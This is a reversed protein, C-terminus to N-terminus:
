ENRKLQRCHLNIVRASKGAAMTSPMPQMTLAHLLGHDGYVQQWMMDFLKASSVRPDKYRNRIVDIQWQLGRLRRQLQKPARRIEREIVDRRRSEFGQPDNAALEKWEDFDFTKAQTKM